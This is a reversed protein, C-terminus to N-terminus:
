WTCSQKEGVEYIERFEFFFSQWWPIQFQSTFNTDFSLDHTEYEVGHYEVLLYLDRHEDYVVDEVLRCFQIWPVIVDANLQYRYDGSVRPDADVIYVWDDQYGFWKLPNSGLLFHNSRPGETRLNSFMSVTGATRLGLYNNMCFFIFLAPVFRNWWSKPLRFTPGPVNTRFYHYWVPVFATVLLLGEHFAFDFKEQESKDVGFYMHCVVFLVTM